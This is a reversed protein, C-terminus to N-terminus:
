VATRVGLCFSLVSISLLSLCVSLCLCVLWPYLSWGCLPVSWLSLCVSLCISLCVSLSVSVCLCLSVSVCLCLSVSLCCNSDSCQRPLILLSCQVLTNRAVLAWSMPSSRGTKCSVGPKSRSAFALRSGRSCPALGTSSPM